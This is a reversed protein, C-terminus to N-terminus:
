IMKSFGDSLRPFGLFGPSVRRFGRSACFIRPLCSLNFSFSSYDTSLASFEPSAYFISFLGFAAQSWAFVPAAFALFDTGLASFRPSAHYISFSNLSHRV